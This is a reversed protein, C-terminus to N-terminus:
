KKGEHKDVLEELAMTAADRPTLFGIRHDKTHGKYAVIVLYQGTTFSGVYKKGHQEVEIPDWYRPPQPTRKHAM